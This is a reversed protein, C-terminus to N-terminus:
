APVDYFTHIDTSQDTPNRTSALRCPPPVPLPQASRNDNDILPYWGTFPSASPSGTPAKIDFNNILLM